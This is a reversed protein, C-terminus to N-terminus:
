GMRIELTIRDQPISFSAALGAIMESAAEMSDAIEEPPARRDRPQTTICDSKFLTATRRRLSVPLYIRLDVRM